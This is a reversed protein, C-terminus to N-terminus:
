LDNNENSGSRPSTTVENVAEKKAMRWPMLRERWDPFAFILSVVNIVVNIDYLRNSYSASNPAYFIIVVSIIDSIISILSIVTSRVVLKVVPNARKDPNRIQRMTRYHKVLPHIFLALLCIQFVVTGSSLLIWRAVSLESQVVRCGVPTAVYRVGFSFVAAGVLSTGVLIISIGWSVVQTFRSSLHKLRPDKYFIRQRLWLVLYFATLGISSTVVKFKISLNCGYTDHRGYFLRLDITVRLFAMLEVLICMLAIAIAQRDDIKTTKPRSNTSAESGQTTKTFSSKKLILYAIQTTTLYLTILGLVPAFMHAKIMESRFITVNKTFDPSTYVGFTTTVNQM